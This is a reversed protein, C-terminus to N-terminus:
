CRCSSSGVKSMRKKAKRVGSRLSAYIYASARDIRTNEAKGLLKKLDNTSHHFVYSFVLKRNTEIVKTPLIADDWHFGDLKLRAVLVLGEKELLYKGLEEEINLRIHNDGVRDHVEKIDVSELTSVGNKAPRSPLGFAKLEINYVNKCSTDNALRYYNSRGTKVCLILGAQRLQAICREISRISRNTQAALTKHRVRFGQRGKSANIKALRNLLGYVIKTTSSLDSGSCITLPIPAFPEAPALAPSFSLQHNYEM